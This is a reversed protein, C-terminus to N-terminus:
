KKKINLMEVHKKVREVIEEGYVESYAELEGIAEKKSYNIRIPTGNKYKHEHSTFHIKNFTSYYNAAFRLMRYTGDFNKEYGCEEFLGTKSFGTAVRRLHINKYDFTRLAPITINGITYRNITRSDLYEKFGDLLLSIEKNKIEIDKSNIALLLHLISDSYQISNLYDNYLLDRYKVLKEKQMEKIHKKIAEDSINLNIEM